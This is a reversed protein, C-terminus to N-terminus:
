DLVPDSCIENAEYCSIQSSISQWQRSSLISYMKLPGLLYKISYVLTQKLPIYQKKQM